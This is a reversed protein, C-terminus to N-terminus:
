SKAHPFLSLFADTVLKVTGIIAAIALAYFTKSAKSLDSKIKEIDAANNSCRTHLSNAMLEPRSDGHVWEATETALQELEKLRNAFDSNVHRQAPDDDDMELAQTNDNSQIMPGVKVEDGCSRFQFM